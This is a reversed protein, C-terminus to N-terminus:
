RCPEPWSKAALCPRNEGDQGSATQGNLFPRRIDEFSCTAVSLPPMMELNQLGDARQDAPAKTIIPPM